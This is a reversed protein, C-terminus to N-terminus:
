SNEWPKGITYAIVGASIRWGLCGAPDGANPMAPRSGSSDLAEYLCPPVVLLQVMSRSLSVHPSPHPEAPLFAKCFADIMAYITTRLTDGDVM